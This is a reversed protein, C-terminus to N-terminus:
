LVMEHSFSVKWDTGKRGHNHTINPAILGITATSDITSQYLRSAVAHFHDDPAETQRNSPNINQDKSLRSSAMSTVRPCGITVISLGKLLWDEIFSSSASSAWRWCSWLCSTAGDGRWGVWWSLKCLPGAETEVGTSRSEPGIDARPTGDTDVKLGGCVGNPGGIVGMVGWEAASVPMIGVRWFITDVTLKPQLSSKFFIARWALFASYLGFRNAATMIRILSGLVVARIKLEPLITQVPALLSSRDRNAALFYALITWFNPNSTLEFPKLPVVQKFDEKWALNKSKLIWFMTPLQSTLNGMLSSPRTRVWLWNEEYSGSNNGPRM